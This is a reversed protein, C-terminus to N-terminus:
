GRRSPWRPQPGTDPLRKAVPWPPHLPPRSPPPPLPSSSLPTSGHHLHPPLVSPPPPRPMGGEPRTRVPQAHCAAVDRGRRLREPVARRSRGTQGSTQHQCKAPSPWIEQKRKQFSSHQICEANRSALTSSSASLSVLPLKRARKRTHTSHPRSSHHHM